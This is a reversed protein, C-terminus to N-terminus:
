LLPQVIGERVEGYRVHGTLLTADRSPNRVHGENVEGERSLQVLCEAQADTISQRKGLSQQVGIVPSDRASPVQTDGAIPGPQLM